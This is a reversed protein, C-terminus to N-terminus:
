LALGFVSHIQVLVSSYAKEHVCSNVTHQWIIIAESTMFICINCVTSFAVILVKSYISIGYVLSLFTNPDLNTQLSGGWKGVLSRAQVAISYIDEFVIM